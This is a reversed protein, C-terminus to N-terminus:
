QRDVPQGDANYLVAPDLREDDWIPGAFGCNHGGRDVDDAMAWIRVTEGPDIVGALPCTQGGRESVLVWGTLDQAQGGDNRIDVYEAQRDLAVIQVMPGAFAATPSPEPTELPSQEPTPTETPPIATATDSPEPTATPPIPTSTLPEPTATPTIPTETPNPTHTPSPRPTPSSAETPMPTPTNEPASTPMLTPTPTWTPRPTRLAVPRARGLLGKDMM